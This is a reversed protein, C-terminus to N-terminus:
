IKEDETLELFIDELTSDSKKKLNEMTDCAILKGEDIIGIRDCLNEVIELIHSSFFVTKGESCHEKMVNKLIRASRPDLGGLPEDLILLKPKPLLAGTVLLKQKMGHSYSNIPNTLDNYIEFDETYKEIIDKRDKKSVEYMDAIFNLYDIGKISDFIEPHDPVYTFCNKAKIPDKKINFQDIFIEGDTIDLIGTMMRITTTKGAGNPGLFGFIEGKNVELSLKDVAKKKNDYIKTVNKIKLM